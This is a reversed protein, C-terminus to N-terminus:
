LDEHDKYGTYNALGSVRPLLASVAKDKGTRAIALDEESIKVRESRQLAIAYLDDLTYRAALAVPALCLWLFIAAFVTRVNV